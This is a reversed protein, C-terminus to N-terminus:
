GTVSEFSYEKSNNTPAPLKATSTYSNEIL